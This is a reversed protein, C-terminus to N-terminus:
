YTPAMYVCLQVSSCWQAPSVHYKRHALWCLWITQEVWWICYTSTSNFVRVMFIIISLKHASGLTNSMCAITLCIKPMGLRVILIIYHRTRIQLVCFIHEAVPKHDFNTLIPPWLSIKCGVHALPPRAILIAERQNGEMIITFPWDLM